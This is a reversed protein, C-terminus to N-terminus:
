LILATLLLTQSCYMRRHKPRIRHCIYRIRIYLHDFGSFSFHNDIVQILLCLISHLESHARSNLAQAYVTNSSYIDSFPYDLSLIQISCVGTWVYSSPRFSHCSRHTWIAALLFIRLFLLRHFFPLNVTGPHALEVSTTPSSPVTYSYTWADSATGTNITKTVGYAGM